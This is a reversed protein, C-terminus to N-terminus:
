LKNFQLITTTLKLIEHCREAYADLRSFLANHTVKWAGNTRAKYDIYEEKFKTCIDITIELKKCIQIVQENGNGLAAAIENRNIFDNARTIIANCIEKILVVLRPATNYFRSKQYILLITHM